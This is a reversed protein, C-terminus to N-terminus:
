RRSENFHRNVNAPSRLAMIYVAAVSADCAAKGDAMSQHVVHKRAVSDNQSETLILNLDFDFQSQTTSQM